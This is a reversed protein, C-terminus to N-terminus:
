CDLSTSNSNPYYLFKRLLVHSEMHEFFHDRMEDRLQRGLNFQFNEANTSRGRKKGNTEDTFLGFYNNENYSLFKIM